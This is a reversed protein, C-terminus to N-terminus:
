LLMTGGLYSLVHIELNLIKHVFFSILRIANSRILQNDIISYTKRDTQLTAILSSSVFFQSGDVIIGRTTGKIKIRYITNSEQIHPLFVVDHM